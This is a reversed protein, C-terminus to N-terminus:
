MLFFGMASTKTALPHLFCLIAIILLINKLNTKNLNQKLIVACPFLIMYAFSVSRTTDYITLSLIVIVFLTGYLFITRLYDKNKLLIMLTFLVLLWCGELGWGIKFGFVQLNGFLNPKFESSDYTDHMGLMDVLIFKRVIWYFIWSFIIILLQKNVKFNLPKEAQWQPVLWWWLFVFAGSVFAREDNWFAMQSFAFILLPNRFYIALFLFFYSFFDGYGSFDIFFSMGPYITAIAVVAYFTTIKDEFIKNLFRILAYFFFLGCCLQMAYLWFMAPRLHLIRVILPQTLRFTRNNLGTLPPYIHDGTLDKARDVITQYAFYERHEVLAKFYEQYHKLPVINSFISGFSLLAVLVAVRLEWYKGQMFKDLKQEFRNQMELLSDM